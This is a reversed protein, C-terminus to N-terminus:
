RKKFQSFWSQPVIWVMCIWAVAIAVMRGLSPHDDLAFVLCIVLVGSVVVPVRDMPFGSATSPINTADAKFNPDTPSKLVVNADTSEKAKDILELEVDIVKRVWETMLCLHMQLKLHLSEGSEGVLPCEVKDRLDAPLQDFHSRLTRIDNRLQKKTLDDFPQHKTRVELERASIEEIVPLIMMVIEDPSKIRTKQDPHFHISKPAISM